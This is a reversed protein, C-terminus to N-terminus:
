CEYWGEVFSEKHPFQKLLRNLVFKLIFEDELTRRAFNFISHHEETIKTFDLRGDQFGREYSDKDDDITCDPDCVTIERQMYKECDMIILKVIEKNGHAHGCGIWPIYLPRETEKSYRLLKCLCSSLATYSLHCYGEAPTHSGYFQQTMCHFIILQDNITSPWVTGLYPSLNLKFIDLYDQYAQPYKERIAKAIGANFVGQTNCGHAIIGETVDLLSQKIIKM